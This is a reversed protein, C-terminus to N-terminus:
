FWSVVKLSQLMEEIKDAESQPFLEETIRNTGKLPDKPPAFTGMSGQARQTGRLIHQQYISEQVRFTYTPNRLVRVAKGSFLISEAIRMPIYEPLMEQLIITVHTFLITSTLSYLEELSFSSMTAILIQM